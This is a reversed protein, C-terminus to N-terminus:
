THNYKCVCMCLYTPSEVWTGPVITYWSFIGRPSVCVFPLGCLRKDLGVVVLNLWWVISNMAANGVLAVMEGAVTEWAIANQAVEDEVVM